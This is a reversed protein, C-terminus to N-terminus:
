KFTEFNAQGFKYTMGMKIRKGDRKIQGKDELAKLTMDVQQENLAPGKESPQLKLVDMLLAKDFSIDMKADVLSPLMKLMSEASSVYNPMIKANLNAVLDGSKSQFKNQNSDLVFGANFLGLLSQLIDADFSKSAACSSDKQDVLKFYKELQARNLEKFDFHFEANQYSADNGSIIQGVKFLMKMEATSSQLSTDSKIELAKLLIPGAAANTMRLQIQETKWEVFGAELGAQNLGQNTKFLSNKIQLQGKDDFLRLEPLSFEVQKILATHDKVQSHVQIVAPDLELKLKSFETQIKPILVKTKVQGTWQIVTDAQIPQNFLKAYKDQKNQLRLATHIEYGRWSRKIEDRGVFTMKSNADCPDRQVVFKVDASGSVAGMQYNTYSLTYNNKSISSQQYYAALSKDAYIKAGAGAATIVVVAGLGGWLMKSM